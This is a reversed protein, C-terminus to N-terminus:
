IRRIGPRRGTKRSRETMRLFAAKPRSGTRLCMNSCHRLTFAAYGASDVNQTSIDDYGTGNFYYLYTEEGAGFPPVALVSVTAKGPLAGSHGFNLFLLKTGQPFVAANKAVEGPTNSFALSMDMAAAIDTGHFVFRAVVKGADDLVAFIITKDQGKIQEFIEQSRGNRGGVPILLAQQPSLASLAEKIKGLDLGGGEEAIFRNGQGGRGTDASGARHHGNQEGVQYRGSYKDGHGCGNGYSKRHVAGGNGAADPRRGSISATSIARM